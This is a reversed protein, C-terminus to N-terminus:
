PPNQVEFSSTPEVNDTGHTSHLLWEICTGRIPSMQITSYQVTRM